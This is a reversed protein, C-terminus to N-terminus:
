KSKSYSKKGGKNNINPESHILFITPTKHLEPKEKKWRYVPKTKIFEEKGSIDKAVCLRTEGHLTDLMTSLLQNNRFPTEIFIQTQNHKRSELELNKIVKAGEAKDIPIYGHFCFKQGNMGSAMLAMLISSPGVLPTVQFNHVHAYDVALAGPDAVGPCGSESIIGINKGKQMPAFLAKLEETKTKKNLVEFHMEEIVRGTKLSSIYRRATRIDEVLFHNTHQIVAKIQPAIVDNATDDAIVSPILYLVPSKKM